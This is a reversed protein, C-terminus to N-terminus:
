RALQINKPMITVHKAHIACLNAQELLGVLFAEGAEQLAKVATSQFRLDGRIGETIEKIVRQFPLRRILLETGSDYRKIEKLAKLGRRM